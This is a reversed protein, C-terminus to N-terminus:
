PDRDGTLTAADMTFAALREVRKTGNRYDVFEPESILTYPEQHAVQVVREADPYPLPRLLVGNVVSFIAVNAGIGLALTALVIASFARKTMMGRLAYRIDGMLTAFMDENRSDFTIRAAQTTHIRSDRARGFWRAIGDLRELTAIRLVDAIAVVWAWAVGLTGDARRAAARRDRFFDVMDPGFRERFDPPYLRLLARYCRDAVSRPDPGAIM